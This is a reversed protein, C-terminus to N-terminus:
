KSIYDDLAKANDRKIRNNENGFTFDLNFHRTKNNANWEDVLVPIFGYEARIDKIIGSIYEDTSIGIPKNKLYVTESYVKNIRKSSMEFGKNYYSGRILMDEVTVTYGVNSTSAQRNTRVVICRVVRKKLKMGGEYPYVGDFQEVFTALINSYDSQVMLINSNYKEKLEIVRAKFQSVSKGKKFTCVDIPIGVKKAIDKEIIVKSVCVKYESINSICIAYTDTNNGDKIQKALLDAKLGEIEAKISRIENEISALNNEKTRLLQELEDIKDFM